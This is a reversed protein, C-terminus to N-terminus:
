KKGSTPAAASQVATLRSAKDYKDMATMFKSVFDATNGPNAQPQVSDSASLARRPSTAPPAGPPSLAESGAANEQGGAGNVSNAPPTKVARSPTGPKVTDPSLRELASATVPRTPTARTPMKLSAARKRAEAAERNEAVPRSEAAPTVPAVAAPEAPAQAQQEAVAQVQEAPAPVSPLASGAAAAPAARESPTPATVEIRGRPREAPAVPTPATAAVAASAPATASDALKTSAASAAADGTLMAMVQGGIDKGTAEEVAVNVIASFAGIPGGLLAGGVIQPLAGIKDGTLERYVLNVVPIHQLPNIFDLLDWVTPQDGEAFAHVNGKNAATDGAVVPEFRAEGNGSSVANAVAAAPKAAPASSPVAAERRQPAAM